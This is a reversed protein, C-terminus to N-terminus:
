IGFTKRFENRRKMFKKFYQDIDKTIAPKMYGTVNTTPGVPFIALQNIKVDDICAAYAALQRFDKTSGTKYDCITWVGGFKCILDATGVYIHKDNWVQIETRPEKIKDKHKELFKKLSCDDWHLDLSGNLLIAVDAELDKDLEPDLWINKNVNVQAQKHVITGRSGYQALEHEPIRFVSDFGLIDTVHPYMIGNRKTFRINDYMISLVEAKLNHAELNFLGKMESIMEKFKEKAVPLSSNEGDIIMQYSLRCNEYPATRVIGEFRATLEKIKM